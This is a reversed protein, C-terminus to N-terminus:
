KIHLKVKVRYRVLVVQQICVILILLLIYHYPSLFVERWPIDWENWSIAPLSEVEVNGDFDFEDYHVTDSDSLGSRLYEYGDLCIPQGRCPIDEYPYYFYAQSFQTKGYVFIRPAKSVATVIKQTSLEVIGGEVKIQMVKSGELSQFIFTANNHLNLTWNLGKRFTLPIYYGRCGHSISVDTTRITSNCAGYIDIEKLVVNELSFVDM